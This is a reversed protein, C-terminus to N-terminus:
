RAAAPAPQSVCWAGWMERYARELGLTFKGADFLPSNRIQERQSSRAAALAAFDSALRLAIDFYEEQNKAVWEPHGSAALMSPGVRGAFTEGALCVVPVGMWLSECTSTGGNCPCPDLAIDVIRYINLFEVSSLMEFMQLRDAEVGQAAFLERMRNQARGAPITTIVLKSHPVAKLIRAWLSVVEPGVKSVGNFSGFTLYGNAKAPLESVEPMDPPPQYCVLTDKLRWLKETYHRDGDGPPDAIADTLRYDMADLGTTAPYGLYTVQVPAPHNAFVTLRNGESHGSLDVLIDIADNRIMAEAEQDTISAINRWADSLCKLRATYEDEPKQAYYCFVEFSNKDHHELIPLLFYAVPHRRLDASVYGVRLRKHPDAANPFPSSPLNSTKRRLWFDSSARAISEMSYGPLLIMSFQINSLAVQDEPDLAAARVFWPMADATRGQERLGTGLNLMAEAYDPRLELAKESCRVKEDVEGHNHLARALNSYAEPIAPNLAIARRLVAIAEDTKCQALLASGLNVHLIAINPALEIARRLDAEAEPYRKLRSKINGLNSLAQVSKPETALAREYCAIAQHLQGSRGHAFGLDFVAEWRGPQLQALREFGRIAQENEGQELLAFSLGKIADLRNPDLILAHRFVEEAARARGKMLLTGALNIQFNVDKPSLAVARRMRDEAVDLRGTQRAIVGSLDYAEPQTPALAIIQQYIKEADALRGQRQLELAQKMLSNGSKLLDDSPM